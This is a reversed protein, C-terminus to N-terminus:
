KLVIITKEWCHNLRRHETEVHARYMYPDRGIPRIQASVTGGACSCWVTAVKLFLCHYQSRSVRDGGQEWSWHWCWTDPCVLVRTCQGAHVSSIAVERCLLRLWRLGACQKELSKPQWQSWIIKWVMYLLVILPTGSMQIIIPHPAGLSPKDAPSRKIKWQQKDPLLHILYDCFVYLNYQRGWVVSSVGLSKSKNISKHPEILKMSRQSCSSTLSSLGCLLWFLM